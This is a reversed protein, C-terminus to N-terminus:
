MLSIRPLTSPHRGTAAAAAAVSGPASVNSDQRDATFSMFSCRASVVALQAFCWTDPQRQPTPPSPPPAPPYVPVVPVFADDSLRSAGLNAVVADVADVAHQLHLESKALVKSSRAAVFARFHAIQEMSLRSELQQLAAKDKADASRM